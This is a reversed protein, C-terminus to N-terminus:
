IPRFFGDDIQFNNYKKISCSLLNLEFVEGVILESDVSEADGVMVGCSFRSSPTKPATTNPRPEITLVPTKILM